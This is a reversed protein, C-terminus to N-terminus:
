NDSAVVVYGNWHIAEWKVKKSWDDLVQVIIDLRERGHRQCRARKSHFCLSNQKSRHGEQLIDVGM